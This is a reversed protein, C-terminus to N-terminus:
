GNEEGMKPLLDSLFLPKGNKLLIQIDRLDELPIKERRTKSRSNTRGNKDSGVVTFEFQNKKMALKKIKGAYMKGNTIIRGVFPIARSLVKVTEQWENSNKGFNKPRKDERFRRLIIWAEM